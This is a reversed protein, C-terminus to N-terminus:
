DNRQNNMENPKPKQKSTADPCIIEVESNESLNIKILKKEEPVILSTLELYSINKKSNQKISSFLSQYQPHLSPSKRLWPISMEQVCQGKGM